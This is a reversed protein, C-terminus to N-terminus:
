KAFPKKCDMYTLPGMCKPCNGSVASTGGDYKSCYYTGNKIVISGCKTCKGESSYSNGCKCCCHTAPHATTVKTVTTTSTKTQAFIGASIVLAFIM